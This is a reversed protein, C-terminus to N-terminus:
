TEYVQKELHLAQSNFHHSYKCVTAKASTNVAQRKRHDNVILKSKAHM